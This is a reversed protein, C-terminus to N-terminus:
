RSLNQLDKLSQKSNKLPMSLQWCSKTTSRTTTNQWCTTAHCSPLLTYFEKMTQSHCSLVLSMTLLTLRLLM